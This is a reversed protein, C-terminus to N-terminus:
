EPRDFATPLTVSATPADLLVTAVAFQETGIRTGADAFTAASTPLPVIYTLATAFPANVIACAFEGVAPRTNKHATTPHTAIDSSFKFINSIFERLPSPDANCSGSSVRSNSLLM